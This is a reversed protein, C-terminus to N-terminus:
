KFYKQIKEKNKEFWGFNCNCNMCLLGRIKGTAHDHDIALKQKFKTQHRGCIACKGNQSKYFKNYEVTTIGYLKQLYRDFRVVPGGKWNPNKSDKFMKSLTKKMKEISKPNLHATRLAYQQKESLESFKKGFNPNNEGCLSISIAKKHKKSLSKGIHSLCMKKRIEPTRIYKGKNM